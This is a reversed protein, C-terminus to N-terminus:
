ATCICSNKNYFRKIYCRGNINVRYADSLWSSFPFAAANVLVGILMLWTATNKINIADFAVSGSTHIQMIIGALLILGGVIHVIIYRTGSKRSRENFKLLILFVSSLAMLEWFVYLSMLDRAFVVSIASGIYILASTYEGKKSIGIGYLFAVFSAIVFVYGFTLSLPDVRLLDLSTNLFQLSYNSTKTLTTLQFFAIIPISFVFIRRSNKPLFHSLIGGFIYLLGPTLNFITM